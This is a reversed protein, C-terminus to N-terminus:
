IPTALSSNTSSVGYNCLGANITCVTGQYELPNDDVDKPIDMDQLNELRSYIQFDSGDASNYFYLYGDAPDEPIQVMYYTGNADQWEDGWACDAGAGCGEILDDGLPYQGYDNYYSELAKVINDLDAKRRADRGKRQTSAFSGLGIGALIGIIVIVILLEVLTFGKSKNNKQMLKMMFTIKSLVVMPM